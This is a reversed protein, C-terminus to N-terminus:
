LSTRHLAVSADINAMARFGFRTKAPTYSCFSADAFASDHKPRGPGEAGEAGEYASFTRSTVTPASCAL